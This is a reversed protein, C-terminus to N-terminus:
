TQNKNEKRVMVELKDLLDSTMMSHLLYMAFRIRWGVFFGRYGGESKIDKFADIIKGKGKVKQM